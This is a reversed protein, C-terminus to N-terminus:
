AYGHLGGLVYNVGFYTILVAAFALVVYLHFFRPRRFRGLSAAHLPLAYLLWTILAWVEKPDWGWYRGWSVDAWCAGLFIGAGLLVVAPVLLLRTRLMGRLAPQSPRVLEALAHLFSLLLLAYALMTLCVHLSLLPSELVPQLGSLTAGQPNLAAVLLFFGSALLGLVGMPGETSPAAGQRGKRGGRAVLGALMVMWAGCLMTEYGSAVPLRGGVVSRLVIFVTLLLWAAVCYLRLGRLLRVTRRHAAKQGGRLRLLLLFGLLGLTLNLRSLLTPLDFANYLREAWVRRATPLTTGGYRQQFRATAAIDAAVGRWDAAGAHASLQAFATRVWLSDAQPLVGDPLAEAPGHWVVGQAGPVPFLRFWEGRRLRFVLSIRADVELAAATMAGEGALLPGLRYGNLFFDNLSARRGVALRERLDRSKVEILPEANWDDPWLVWGTMVQEATFAGYSPQGSLKRCFDRAVTQLPCIRGEYAVLLRGVAEAEAQPLARPAATAWGAAMGCWLLAAAELRRLARWTRRLSGSRATLEVVMALLLLAYGAYTLPRGWPDCRVLLVSGHGDTDFSSQCLRVGKLSLPRNMAVEEHRGDALLHSVYDRPTLTGAHNVVSFEQLELRFPLSATAETRGEPTYHQVPVGRRLHVTGSESTLASLAAGALIVALAGHWLWLRRNRGGARQLWLLGIVATLGWLVAFWPAYYIHRAAYDTGHLYGTCTATALVAVTLGLLGFATRRLSFRFPSTTM